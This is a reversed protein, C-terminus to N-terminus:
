FLLEWTRKLAMPYTSADQDDQKSCGTSQILLLDYHVCGSYFYVILGVRFHLKRGTCTEEEVAWMLGM